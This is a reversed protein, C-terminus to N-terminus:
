NRRPRRLWTRKGCASTVNSRLVASTPKHPANRVAFRTSVDATIRLANFVKHASTTKAESSLRCKALRLPMRKDFRLVMFGACATLTTLNRAKAQSLLKVPWFPRSRLCLPQSRARYVENAILACARKTMALPKVVNQVASALNAPAFMWGIRLSLSNRLKPLSRFTITNPGFNSGFTDFREDASCDDCTLDM